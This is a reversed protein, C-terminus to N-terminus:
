DPMVCATRAVANQATNIPAAGDIGVVNVTSAIRGVACASAQMSTAHGASLALGVGGAIAAGTALLAAAQRIVRATM